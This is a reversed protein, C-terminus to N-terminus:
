GPLACAPCWRKASRPPRHTLVGGCAAGGPLKAGDFALCLGSECLIRLTARNGPDGDYAIRARAMRGDGARGILETTFWGSAMTQESPGEGLKPLVAGLLARAAPSKMALDFGAM